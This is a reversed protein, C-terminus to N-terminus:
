EGAPFEASLVEESEVDVLVSAFTKNGRAFSVTWQGDRQPEAYTRWNDIGELAEGVGEAQWSLEIAKDRAVRKAEAEDLAKPNYIKEIYFGDDNPYVDVNLADLGRWFSVWWADAYGDYDFSVDWEDPNGLRAMVEADGFLLTRIRERQQEKEEESLARPFKTDSLEGTNLDIHVFALWEDGRYFDVHWLAEGDAYTEARWIKHAALFSTVEEHELALEVAKQAEPDLDKFAKTDLFGEALGWSGLWVLVFAWVWLRKLM